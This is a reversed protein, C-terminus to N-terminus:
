EAATITRVEEVFVCKRERGLLLGQKRKANFGIM